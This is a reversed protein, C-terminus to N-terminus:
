LENWKFTFHGSTPVGGIEAYYSDIQMKYFKSSAVKIIFVRDRAAIRRGTLM